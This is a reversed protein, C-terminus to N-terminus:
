VRVLPQQDRVTALNWLSPNVKFPIESESILLESISFYLCSTNPFIEIINKTRINTHFYDVEKFSSGYYSPHQSVVKM